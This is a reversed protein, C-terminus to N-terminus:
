CIYYKKEIKKANWIYNPTYKKLFIFIFSSVHFDLDDIDLVDVEIYVVHLFIDVDHTEDDVDAHFLWCCWQLLRGSVNEVSITITNIYTCVYTHIQKPTNKYQQTYTHTPTHKLIHGATMLWWGLKNPIFQIDLIM